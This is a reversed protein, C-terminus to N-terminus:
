DSYLRCITSFTRVLVIAVRDMSRGSSSGDM